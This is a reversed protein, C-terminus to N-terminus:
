ETDEKTLQITIDMGSLTRGLEETATKLLKNVDSQASIKASIDGITREKAAIKQSEELLRANEMALAAREIIATIIELEDQDFQRNDPPRVDVSGIVENRLKLPLSLRGSRERGKLQGTTASDQEKNKSVYLLSAKAGTHLIGALKRSKTYEQWKTQVFQRSLLDSERLAKRTEDFQRANQIAISVQDALTSLTNVDDQSFANVDMSQVDLVGIIEEGVRLPLTIESHTDPLDPNNFFVTDAGTDLAIRARGTNSVFGVLGIEGVKLKHGRGLMTRGGTSNAASLIAYERASDLLFIGVHYYGFEKSITTTILSLLNDLNSTSSIARAISSISEFQKARRESLIRALELETTREQVLKELGESFAELQANRESVDKESTQARKVSENLLNILARQIFTIALVIISIAIPSVALTLSSTPSVIVGSTEGIGIGFVALIILFTFVFAGRQGLTLGALSIVVAYAILTIDHLGYGPPVAIIYTIVVFLSSPLLIRSPLLYGRNLAVLSGLAFFLLSGLPMLYALGFGGVASAVLSLADTVISIVILTRLIKVQAQNNNAGENITSQSHEPLLIDEPQKSM